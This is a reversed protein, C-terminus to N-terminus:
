PLGARRGADDCTLRCLVARLMEVGCSVLTCFGDSDASVAVAARPASACSCCVAYGGCCGMHVSCVLWSAAEDSDRECFCHCLRCMLQMGGDDGGCDGLPALVHGKACERSFDVNKPWVRGEEDVWETAFDHSLIARLNSPRFAGSCPLQAGNSSIQVTWRGSVQNFAGCVVGTRGNYQPNTQLGEILVRCGETVTALKSTLPSAPASTTPIAQVSANTSVAPTPAQLAFRAADHNVSNASHEAPLAPLATTPLPQMQVHARVSSMSLIVVTM